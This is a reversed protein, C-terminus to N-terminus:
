RLLWGVVVLAGVAIWLLYNQVLGTQLHRLAGDALARVTRASGHVLAGDIVRQEVGRRLVVDALWYLPRVLAVDYLADVHFGTRATATVARGSRRLPALVRGLPARLPALAQPLGPRRAALWALAGGALAISTASAALGWHEADTAAHETRGLLPELFRGFSDPDESPVFPVFAASPGLLLGGFMSLLALIGLPILILQGPEHFERRKGGRGRYEGHFVRLHLRCIYFATLGSVLLGIAFLAEHGPVEAHRVAMLMADKSFFGAMYPAGALAVVGVGFMRHTWPLVARLGGMRDIDQEHDLALIVSGAGLFLLAKMFAHTVVHFLAAAYAGMGLALFMLGLQSITSWALVKKLDRGAMAVCAAFLATLAGVWAIVLSTAEAAEYLFALRCVLYVGATVMTAAHILASVPTPASMADPLWVHLPIQASKGMAGVFFCLAIVNTLRWEPAGPLFGLWAPLPVTREVLAPMAERLDAFAVRALGVDQLSWFLLFIGLLFGVDGVRNAVFAKMGARAHRDDAYWFGILLYSCLGVGEWGLFVLVLNDGLVLVLMAFVFLNLYCFYRQFGKDERDDAEMTGISYVHILFGVGTVLLAMVASLPDLLFSCEASFRGAGIWTHLGDVLFRDEADLGTLQVLAVFSLVFSVGVSGCSLAITGTRPLPRRLLGLLLGNAAAALLPLVVIWRLLETQHVESVM